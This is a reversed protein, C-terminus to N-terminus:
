TNSVRIGAESARSLREAACSVPAAELMLPATGLKQQLHRCLGCSMTRREPEFQANWGPASSDFKAPYQKNVKPAYKAPVGQSEDGHAGLEDDACTSVDWPCMLSDVWDRINPNNPQSDLPDYEKGTMRVSWLACWLSAQYGYRARIGPLTRNLIIAQRDIKETPPMCSKGWEPVTAAAETAATRICQELASAFEISTSAM